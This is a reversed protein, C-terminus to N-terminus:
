GMEHNKVKGEEAFILILIVPSRVPRLKPWIMTLDRPFQKLELMLPLSISVVTLLVLKKDSCKWLWSLMWAVDKLSNYHRSSGGKGFGKKM